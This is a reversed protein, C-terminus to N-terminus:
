DEDGSAALSLAPAPVFDEFELPLSAAPDSVERLSRNIARTRVGLKEITKQVTSVQSEMSGMLREFTKFETKTIVLEPQTKLFQELADVGDRAVAVEHGNSQLSTRLVRTIQPEDDVVLIRM